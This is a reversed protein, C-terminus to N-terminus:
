YTEVSRSVDRGVQQAISFMDRHSADDEWVTRLFSLLRLWGGRVHRAM